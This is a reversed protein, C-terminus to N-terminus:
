RSIYSFRRKSGAGQAHTLRGLRRGLAQLNSRIPLM